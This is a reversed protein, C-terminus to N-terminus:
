TSAVPWSEPDRSAHMCALVVIEQPDIVYFLLYPFRHLVARRIRGRVSQHARSNEAIRTVAADVEELFEDGLGPRREEYWGFANEVDRDASPKFRVPSSV